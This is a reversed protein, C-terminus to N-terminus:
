LRSHELITQCMRKYEWTDGKLRKRRIGVMEMQPLRYVEMDLSCDPTNGQFRAEQM